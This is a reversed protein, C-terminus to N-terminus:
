KSHPLHLTVTLESPSTPSHPHLDVAVATGTAGEYSGTGGYVHLTDNPSPSLPGRALIMSGGIAIQGYCSGGHSSTFFCIEHDSDTWKKAHDTASGVYDLNTADVHDGAQPTQPPHTVVKGAATTYTFSQAKTFLHIVETHSSSTASSVGAGFAVAGCAGAAVALAAGRGVAKGRGLALLHIAM